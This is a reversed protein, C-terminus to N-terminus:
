ELDVGSAIKNVLRYHKMFDPKKQSADHEKVKQMISAAHERVFNAYDQGECARAKEFMNELASDAQGISKQIIAYHRLVNSLQQDKEESASHAKIYNLEALRYADENQNYTTKIMSRTVLKYLTIQHLYLYHLHFSLSM